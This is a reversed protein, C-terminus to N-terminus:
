LIQGNFMIDSQYDCQFSDLNLKVTKDQYYCVIQLSDLKNIKKDPFVFSSRLLISSQAEVKIPITRFIEKCGNFSFEDRVHDTETGECELKLSHVLYERTSNNIVCIDLFVETYYGEDTEIDGKNNIPYQSEFNIERLFVVNHPLLLKLKKSLKLFTYAFSILGTVGGIVSVLMGVVLSITKWEM